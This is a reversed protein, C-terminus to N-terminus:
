FFHKFGGGLSRLWTFFGEDICMSAYKFVPGVMLRRGPVAAM